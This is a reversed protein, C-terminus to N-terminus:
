PKALEPPSAADAAPQRKSAGDLSSRQLMEADLLAELHQRYGEVTLVSRLNNRRIELSREIERSRWREALERPFGALRRRLYALKGLGDWYQANRLHLLTENLRYVLFFTLIGRYALQFDESRPDGARSRGGADLYRALFRSQWTWDALPSEDITFLAVVDFLPHNATMFGELDTITITRGDSSLLLNTPLFDGHCVVPRSSVAPLCRSLIRWSAAAERLSIHSPLLHLLQKALVKRYYTVLPERDVIREDLSEAPM